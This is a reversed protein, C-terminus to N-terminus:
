EHMYIRINEQATTEVSANIIAVSDVRTDTSRAGTITHQMYCGCALSVYQLKPTHTIWLTDISGHYNLLYATVTTDPCLQLTLEEIASPSYLITDVGIAQVQISDWATYTTRTNNADLSDAHLTVVMYTEMDKYCTTDPECSVLFLVLWASVWHLLHSSFTKIRM